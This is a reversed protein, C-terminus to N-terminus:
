GYSRICQEYDRCIMTILLNAWLPRACTWLHSMHPWSCAIYLSAEDRPVDTVSNACFLVAAHRICRLTGLSGEVPAGQRPARSPREPHGLAASPM